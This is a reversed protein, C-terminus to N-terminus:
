IRRTLNLMQLLNANDLINGETYLMVSQLSDDSNFRKEVFKKNDLYEKFVDGIPNWLDVTQSKFSTILGISFGGFLSLGILVAAWPRRFHM